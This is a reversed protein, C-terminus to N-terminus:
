MFKLNYLVTRQKKEYSKMAKELIVEAADTTGRVIEEACLIDDQDILGDESLIALAQRVREVMERPTSAPPPRPEYLEPRMVICLSRFLDGNRLPDEILYLPRGNTFWANGIPPYIGLSILWESLKQLRAALTSGGGGKVAWEYSSVLFQLLEEHNERVIQEPNIGIPIIQKEKMENLLRRLPTLIQSLQDSQPPTVFVKFYAGIKFLSLFHKSVMSQILLEPLPIDFLPLFGKEQFFQYASIQLDTLGTKTTKIEKKVRPIPRTTGTKLAKTAQFQEYYGKGM